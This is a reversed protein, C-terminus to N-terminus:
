KMHLYKQMSKNNTCVYIINYGKNDKEDAEKDYFYEGIYKFETKLRPLLDTTKKEKFLNISVVGKTNLCKKVDNFDFSNYSEEADLDIIISDYIKGSKMYKAGDEVIVNMKDDETFGMYKAAKVVASDLEIIDIQLNPFKSRLYMPVYGGGLGIVLINDLKIYKVFLLLSYFYDFYLEELNNKDFISQYTDDKAGKKIFRMYGVGKNDFSVEIYDYYKNAESKVKYVKRGGSLINIMKNNKDIYKVYKQYNYYNYKNNSM